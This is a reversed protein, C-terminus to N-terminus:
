YTGFIFAIGIVALVISAILSSASSTCSNRTCDIYDQYYQNNNYYNQDICSHFCAAQSTVPTTNFSATLNSGLVNAARASANTNNAGSSINALPSSIEGDFIQSENLAPQGGCGNNNLCLQQHEIYM